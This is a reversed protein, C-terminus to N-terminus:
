GFGEIWHKMQDPTKCFMLGDMQLFGLTLTDYMEGGDWKQLDSLMSACAGGLDGTRLIALAREKCWKLHEGRSTM